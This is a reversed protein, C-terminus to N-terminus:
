VKHRRYSDNTGRIRLGARLRPVVEHIGISAPVMLFAFVPVSYRAEAVLPLHVLFIAAVFMLVPLMTTLRDRMWLSSTGIGALVLLPLQILLNLQTIRFTKGLFWFNVINKAVCGALLRPHAIYNDRAERFLLNNFRWEDNPDFFVQFYQEGEFHIGLQRALKGRELGAGQGALYFDGGFSHTQCTYQGEQLAVGALTSTPVFQHVLRYNRVVWPTMMTATGIMLCVTNRMEILRHRGHKKSLCNYLLLLLLFAAPTSRVELTVGFLLGSIFFSVSTDREVAWYFLLM